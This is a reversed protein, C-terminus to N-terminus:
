LAILVNGEEVKVAYRGVCGQDPAMAEGSALDISWNHLPCAVSHGYVIGESLPGGKHPCRDRVAFLQDDGTRFIAIDGQATAVVRAGLAPIADFPGVSIWDSM